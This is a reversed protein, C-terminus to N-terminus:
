ENLSIINYKICKNILQATNSVKLKRMINRRHTLVTNASIFLNNAIEKNNKGTVIHQLIEKERGTLSKNEETRNNSKDSIFLREMIFHNIEKSFYKEDIHITTVARILEERSTNKLLYGELKFQLIQILREENVIDVLVLIKVLPFKEKIESLLKYSDSKLIEIEIVLIEPMLKEIEALVKSEDVGYVEFGKIKQLICSIAYNMLFYKNAILIKIRKM